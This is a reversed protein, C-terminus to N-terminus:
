RNHRTLWRRTPSRFLGEGWMCAEDRGVVQKRTRGRYRLVRLIRIDRNFSM